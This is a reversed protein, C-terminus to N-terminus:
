LEQMAVSIGFSYDILRSYIFRNKTQMQEGITETSNPNLSKSQLQDLDPEKSIRGNLRKRTTKM